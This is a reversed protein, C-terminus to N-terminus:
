ISAIRDRIMYIRDLSLKLPDTQHHRFGLGALDGSNMLCAVSADYYASLRNHGPDARDAELTWKDPDFQHVIEHNTLERNRAASIPQGLSSQMWVWSINAKYDTLGAASNVIGYSNREAGVLQFYDKRGKNKFWEESFALFATKSTPEYTPISDGGDDLKVVETYADDFTELLKSIDPLYFDTAATGTEKGVFGYNANGSKYANVLNGDLTLVNGTVDTVKLLQAERGSADMVRVEDGVAFLSAKKPDVKVKDQGAAANADLLSGVRYMTDQEFYVRRWATFVITAKIDAENINAYNSAGSVTLLSGPNNFPKGQPDVMTARVQYNDGAYGATTRLVVEAV